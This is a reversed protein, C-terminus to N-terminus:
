NLLLAALYTEVEGSEWLAAVEILEGSVLEFERGDPSSYSELDEVTWATTRQQIM